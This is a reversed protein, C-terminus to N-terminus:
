KLSNEIITKEIETIGYIRYVLEDIEADIKRVEAEIKAYEDTKKGGIEELSNNLLLMRNVLEVFIRQEVASIKKIPLERLDEPKINVDRYFQRYFWNMLKSNLIALVYKISYGERVLINTLGSNNYYEDRPDIFTSVIRMKLKPNRIRQVVLHPLTFFKPNRPRSLWKGYKIWQGSQWKTWYRGIDSGVLEKKYETGKKTESHWIRNEVIETGKVKGHKKVLESKAYPNIGRCIESIEGLPVCSDRVKDVLVNRNQYINFLCREDDIWDNQKLKSESEFTNQLLNGLEADKGLISVVVTNKRRIDDNQEKRLIIICTDVNAEAFVAQPLSVIKIISCTSLILGRLNRTQYNTLWTDPTIFGLFGGNVLLRVSREIFYHYSDYRGTASKFTKKIFNKESKSFLAGYPPNGIIVWFGGKDMIEEFQEKWKFAKEGAVRNDDILSNGCKINQELIPLRHGKEAIKLLLNLQAIEVAQKDLDVGFINNQLIKVKATFPTGVKFDLQTQNYNKDNKQYYEDLIDFAKILFSGSGCAPDLVRVKGIDVNEKLLEGLTNKVIYDVIYTPTYYIGQEKKHTRDEKLTARKKTKKLIHSLYQEYITGLVDADIASFDYFVSNDRTHYLGEIIEHLVDNDIELNDCLHNAFIKSNYTKDFYSFVERLSKILQGRGRSEWERMNSILTKAELEKDECNRIFILRDLIRQISEDLEEESLNKSQNLKTVDKSLLERFRTFDALLQKDVSTKKTKKGWKEAEKDILGQEFSEKSLLWLEDFRDLFERSHILKLQSQWPHDTKLEANFVKVSEFNTLIAWTCGKLWSYNIAQDIFKRNDLDEKLSKAELFFKPIGSIRFGYDVRKKSVKEEATVENSNEVDWGLVRFLPLIFDKKTEEEKYKSERGEAVVKDYKEVLRKVEEKAQAKDM